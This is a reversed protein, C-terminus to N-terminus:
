RVRGRVRPFRAPRHRYCLEHTNYRSLKTDCSPDSCIREEDVARPSKGSRVPIRGVMTPTVQTM